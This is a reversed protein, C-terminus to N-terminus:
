CHKLILDAMCKKHVLYTLVFIATEYPHALAAMSVRQRCIPCIHEMVEEKPMCFECYVGHIWSDCIPCWVNM